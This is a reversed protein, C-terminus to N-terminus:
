QQLFNYVEQNTVNLVAACKILFIFIIIVYIKSKIIIKVLKQVSRTEGVKYHITCIASIHNRLFLVFIM